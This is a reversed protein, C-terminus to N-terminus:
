STGIRVDAPSGRKARRHGTATERYPELLAPFRDVTELSQLARVGGYPPPYPGIMAVSFGDM